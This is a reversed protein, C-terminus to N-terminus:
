LKQLQTALFQMFDSVRDMTAKAENENYPKRAHSATNRWIDKMFLCHDAADSYAELKAQRKPGTASTHLSAIKNKIATIVKDWDGYELPIAVGKNSITVNLRKALRRLGREAVRMLQFVTATNNGFAFCNAGEVIDVRAGKFQRFVADGFLRDNNFYKARHSPVYMFLEKEMDWRIHKDLERLLTVIERNTWDRRMDFQRLIDKAYQTARGLAIRACEKAIAVLILQISIKDTEKLPEDLAENPIAHRYFQSGVDTTSGHGSAVQELLRGINYFTEAKFPQMVLWSAIEYLTFLRSPDIDWPKLNGESSALQSEPWSV